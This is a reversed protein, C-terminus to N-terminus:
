KKKPQTITQFFFGNQYSLLFVMLYSLNSLESYILSLIIPALILSRKMKSISSESNASPNEKNLEDYILKSYIGFFISGASIIATVIDLKINVQSNAFFQPSAGIFSFFVTIIVIYITSTISLKFM